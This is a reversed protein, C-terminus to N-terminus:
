EIEQIIQGIRDLLNIQPSSIEKEWAIKCNCNIDEFAEINKTRNYLRLKELIIDSCKPCNYPVIEPSPYFEFLGVFLNRHDPKNSKKIVDIISWLWPPTFKKNEYLLKLLTYDQVTAAELSVTTSGIAFAHNITDIAEDISEKESLYPPKLFVYSRLKLSKTIISAAREYQALSFGKNLCVRRFLDSKLELGMAVEVHLYPLIRKVELIKDETVFEPRSEIVLMKIDSIEAIQELIIKRAESGIERENFFSGNNFISLLPYKKFDITKIVKKFQVIHESSTIQDNDYYSQKAIHGCMICGHAAKKAWECGNSTLFIVVRNYNVGNFVEARAFSVSAVESNKYKVDPIRSHIRDQLKSISKYYYSLELDQHLDTNVIPGLIFELKKNIM